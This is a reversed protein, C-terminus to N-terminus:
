QPELKRFTGAMSTFADQQRKDAEAKVTFDVFGYKGDEEMEKDCKLLEEVRRQLVCPYVVTLHPGPFAAATTCRDGYQHSM